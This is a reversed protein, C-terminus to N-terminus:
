TNPIKNEIKVGRASTCLNFNVECVSETYLSLLIDSLQTREINSTM